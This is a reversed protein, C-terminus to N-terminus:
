KSSVSGRAARLSKELRANQASGFAGTVNSGVWADRGNKKVLKPNVVGFRGSVTAESALRGVHGRRRGKNDYIPIRSEPLAGPKTDTIKRVKPAIDHGTTRFKSVTGM